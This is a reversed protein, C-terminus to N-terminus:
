IINGFSAFVLILTGQNFGPASRIVDIENFNPFIVKDSAPLGTFVFLIVFYNYQYPPYM